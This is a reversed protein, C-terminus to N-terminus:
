VAAAAEIYHEANSPNREEEMWLNLGWRAASLSRAAAMPLLLCEVGIEKGGDNRSYMVEHNEQDTKM